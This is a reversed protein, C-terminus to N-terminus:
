SRNRCCSEEKYITSKFCKSSENGLEVLVSALNAKATKEADKAKQLEELSQGLSEIKTAVDLGTAKEWNKNIFSLLCATFLFSIFACLYITKTSAYADFMLHNQDSPGDQEIIGQLAKQVLTLRHFVEKKKEEAVKEWAVEDIKKTAGDRPIEALVEEVKIDKLKTRGEEGAAEIVKKLVGIKDDLEEIKRPEVNIM